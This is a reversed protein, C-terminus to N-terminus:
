ACCPRANMAAGRPQRHKMPMATPQSIAEALKASDLGVGEIDARELALNVHAEAVGPQRGLVKEIRASCSACTMGTIDFTLHDPRATM